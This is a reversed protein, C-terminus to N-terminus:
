GCPLRQKGNMRANDNPNAYNELIKHRYKEILILIVQATM